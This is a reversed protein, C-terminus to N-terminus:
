SLQTCKPFLIRMRTRSHLEALNCIAVEYAIGARDFRKRVLETLSPAILAPHIPCIREGRRQDLYSDITEAIHPLATAVKVLLAVFRAGVDTIGRNPAVGLRGRPEASKPIWHRERARARREM